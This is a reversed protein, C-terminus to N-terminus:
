TTLSVWPLINTFWWTSVPPRHLASSWSNSYAYRVLLVFDETAFNRLALALLKGIIMEEPSPLERSTELSKTKEPEMGTCQRADNESGESSASESEGRESSTDTPSEEAKVTEQCIKVEVGVDQLPEETAPNQSTIPKCKLVSKEEAKEAPKPKSLLLQQEGKQPALENQKNDGKVVQNPETSIIKPSQQLESKEPLQETREAETATLSSSKIKPRKGRHDNLNGEKTIEIKEKMETM